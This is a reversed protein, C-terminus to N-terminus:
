IYLRASPDCVLIHLTHLPRHHSLPHSIIHLLRRHSVPHSVQLTVFMAHGMHLRGTVNPPPMPMTFPEGSASEDPRFYGREEWRDDHMCWHMHVVSACACATVRRLLNTPFASRQMSCACWSYLREESAAPDFNKPLETAGGQGTNLPCLSNIQRNCIRDLFKAHM